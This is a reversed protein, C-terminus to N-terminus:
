ESWCLCAESLLLSSFKIAAYIRNPGGWIGILLYMPILMAEWFMYFLFLDLSCFVGIMLGELLLLAAYFEKTRETISTWSVTVCLITLLASLLVFLV